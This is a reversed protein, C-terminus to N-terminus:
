RSNPDYRVSILASTYFVRQLRRLYALPRHLNGCIKGSDRPAPAFAALADPSDSEDLSGGVAAPFEAGLTTGIGSVSLVIDALEHERSRGGILKDMGAIQENLAM